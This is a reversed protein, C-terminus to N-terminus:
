RDWGFYIYYNGGVWKTHNINQEKPIPFGNKRGKKKQKTKHSRNTKNGGIEEQVDHDM